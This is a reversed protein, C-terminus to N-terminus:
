VLVRVPVGKNRLVDVVRRGVGGTAGAVLVIGSSEMNRIPESSPQDSLKDILSEIFQFCSLHCAFLKYYGSSVFIEFVVSINQYCFRVKVPSPIADFFFLTKVFRGLDWPQNGTAAYIQGKYLRRSNYLSQKQYIFPDLTNELQLFSKGLSLSPLTTCLTRRSLGKKM